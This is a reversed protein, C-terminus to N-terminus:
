VAAPHDYQKNIGKELLQKNLEELTIKGLWFQQRLQKHQWMKFLGKAMPSDPSITVSKSKKVKVM